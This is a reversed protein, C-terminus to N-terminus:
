CLSFPSNEREPKLKVFTCASLDEQSFGVPHFLSCILPFSCKDELIIVLVLLAAEGESFSGEYFSM